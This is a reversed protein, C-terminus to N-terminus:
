DSSAQLPVRCDVGTFAYEGAAYPKQWSMEWPGDLYVPDTVAINMELRPGLVPDDARRYTEVTRTQDSLLHGNITSLRSALQTTEIVLTDSEYRAVAHGLRTHDESTPKRGDLYIVRGDGGGEFAIFVRDEYQQIEASHITMVTRVLGPAECETFAPDAAADFTAQQASGADNWPPAPRNVSGPGAGLWTGTLNPRGDDLTLSLTDATGIEIQSASALNRIVSGDVPDIEAVAESGESFSRRELLVMPGTDRRPHGVIRVYQGERLTDATWGWRRMAATSPATAMWQGEVGNDDTVTLVVAVHPNKFIFENVYGEVEITKNVDFAAAASHHGYAPNIGFAALFFISLSEQYKM